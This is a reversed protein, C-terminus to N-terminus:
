TIIHDLGQQVVMLDIIIEANSTFARIEIIHIFVISAGGGGGGELWGEEQV